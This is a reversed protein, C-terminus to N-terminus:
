WAPSTLILETIEDPPRPRAFHFGQALDCGLVRLLELQRETEVGEAITTLDLTHGLEVVASVIAQDQPHDDLEAVFSRDVKVVDIPFNRLYTLSSYGTGFDDIGLRVGSDKLAQLNELVSHVAEMFVTETMELTLLEPAVGAQALASDVIASLAPQAVQRGSVNVAMHLPEALLAQWKAQQRCAEELVWQGIPAILGSEEAIDIFEAPALLGRTPHQLRLLAEVGVIHGQELNIIPQYHLRFRGHVLADRLESEMEVRANAQKRLSEDYLEYCARGRGKARYMATDARRLLEVPDDDASRTFAVGISPSVVVARGALTVPQSIADLLRDAIGIGDAEDALGSCVVVFEDGGLRAVTDPPRMATEIRRSVEILLQDGAEHGLDDNIRKFRDLDLYFVAVATNRRSLDDLEHQLRDMLVRRNSLGTLPDHLAQFVLRDEAARRATIDAIQVIAYQPEGNQDQVARMTLHVWVKEGHAHRIPGERQHSPSEGRIMRELGEVDDAREDPDALDSPTMAILEAESYGTLNSFAKNVHVIRGPVRETLDVLAMGIPADEFAVRFREESLRLADQTAFRGAREGALALAHSAREGIERAFALDRTGFRRGSRSTSVLTLAGFTRGRSVLPVVMSSRTDLEQLLTAHGPDDALAELDSPDIDRCCLSKGAVVSDDPLEGADGVVYRWYLEYLKPMMDPDHHALGVRTAGSEDVVYVGCWDAVEPVLLRPILEVTTELEQAEARGEFDALFRENERATREAEDAQARDVAIAIRDGALRLLDVDPDGFRNPLVSGVHLVGVLREGSLLPVGVLSRLGLARLTPSVLMDPAVDDLIVPARSQVVQGAFGDGVTSADDADDDFGVTAGVALSGGEDSLLRIRAVDADMVHVLRQLMADLLDQLGLRALGVDTIEQLQRVRRMAQLRAAYMRANDLALAGRHAIDQVLLFDDDTYAASSAFRATALSGYTEGRSSLPVVILSGMPYRGVFERHVADVNADVDGPRLHRAFVPEGRRLVKNAWGTDLDPTLSAYARRMPSADVEPPLAMGVPELRGGDDSLLSVLCADGVADRAKGALLQATAGVDDLTASVQHTFDAILGAREAQFRLEQEDADRPVAVALPTV